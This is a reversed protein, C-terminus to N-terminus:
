TGPNRGKNLEFLLQETGRHPAMSLGERCATIAEEVRGLQRLALAKVYFPAVANTDRRGGRIRELKEFQQIAVEALEIASEPHSFHDAFAVETAVTSFFDTAQEEFLRSEGSRALFIALASRYRILKQAPQGFKEHAQGAAYLAIPNEPEVSTAYDFLTRDDQWIQIRKATTIAYPVMIGVAAVVMMTNAGIPSGPARAAASLAAARIALVILACLALSPTFVLRFAGVTGIPFTNTVLLATCFFFLVWYSWIARTRVFHWAALGLVLAWAVLAMFGQPSAPRDVAVVFRNSFAPDLRLGITQDWFYYESFVQAATRWRILLGEDAWFFTRTESPALWAGLAQHRLIMYVGLALLCFFAYRPFRWRGGRRIWEWSLMAPLLLIASEKSLLSLLFAVAALLDALLGGHWVGTRERLVLWFGLAGFGLALMEERHKINCVAEVHSPFLAFLAAILAPVWPGYGPSLMRSLLLYVIAVVAGYLLVNTLHFPYPRFTEDALLYDLAISSKLLPRYLNGNENAAANGAYLTGSFFRGWDGRFGDVERNGTTLLEDDMTFGLRTSPYYLATAGVFLLLTMLGTSRLMDATRVSVAARNM